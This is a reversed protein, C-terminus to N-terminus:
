KKNSGNKNTEEILFHFFKTVKEDLKLKCFCLVCFFINKKSIEM